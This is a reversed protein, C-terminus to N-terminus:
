LKSRVHMLAKGLLSQGSGDGGDGWISDRTTHEALTKTGTSLLIKKAQPNSFKGRLADLMVDYKVKDWDSRLVLGQDKYEAIVDNIIRPETAKNVKWRNSGRSTKQTGLLKSKFPTDAQRIIDMYELGLAHLPHSLPYLFKHAHFYNETTPWRKGDIIFPFGKHLNSFEGYQENEDYFLITDTGETDLLRIVQAVQADTQPVKNVKVGKNPRTKFAARTFELADSGSMGYHLGVVLAGITGARGKGGLCHMYVMHDQEMLDIIVHAYELAKKDPVTKRDKIPLQTSVTGPNLYPEYSTLKALEASEQLTVFATVGQAQISQVQKEIDDLAGPNAGMILKGPILWNSKPYLSAQKSVLHVPQPKTKIKIKIKIKGALCTYTQDAM